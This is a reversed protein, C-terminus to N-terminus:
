NRNGTNMPTSSRYNQEMIRDGTRDYRYTNFNGREDFRGVSTEEQGTASTTTLIYYGDNGFSRLTGFPNQVGNRSSTINIGRPDPSFRYNQNNFSYDTAQRLEFNQRQSQTSGANVSTNRTNGTTVTRDGITGTTTGTNTGMNTGTTTGTTTASRNGTTGTTTGTTTGSPSTYTGTRDTNPSTTSSSPGCSTFGVSAIAVM